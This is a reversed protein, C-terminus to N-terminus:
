KNYFKEVAEFALNADSLYIGSGNFCNIEIVKLGLPTDAIDIVFCDDPQWIDVMKQAFGWVDKDVESSLHLRGYSNKYYSGTIAKKGVVFFRWEGLIRKIPAVVVKTEASLNIARTSKELKEISKQWSALNDGDILQGDFAKLDECPRIFAKPFDIKADKFSSVVADGNLMNESGYNKLWAEFRFNENYCVGPTWKKLKAVNILSTSGLAFIKQGTYDIDPEINDAFPILKFFSWTAGFQKIHNLADIFPKQREDTGLNSQLLWHM